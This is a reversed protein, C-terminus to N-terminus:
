RFCNTLKKLLCSLGLILLGGVIGPEPVATSNPLNAEFGFALFQTSELFPVQPINGVNFNDDSVLILSRLGNPLQPGLEIGEINNLGNALGLDNLNLLLQKQVPRINALETASLANLSPISSIDTAEDLSFEYLKITNGGGPRGLSFSRELALLTTGNDLALLDVLGTSTFGNSPQPAFAVRDTEYLFEGNPQGTTLDYRLLRSRTDNTVSGAPGDQVLANESATFFTRGDPTIAGSEFALNDRVGRTQNPSTVADPIFKEPIPLSRIFNGDLNYENLFPNTRIQGTAATEGESTVLLTGSNTLQISELDTSFTNYFSGDNRRLRTVDTFSVRSNDFTGNSLDLTLTYFRPPNGPENPQGGRDDTVAYYRNNVADYTLGSLGGITTGDLTQTRAPFLAEGIFSLNKITSM